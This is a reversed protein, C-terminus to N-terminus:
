EACDAGTLTARMAEAQDHTFILHGKAISDYDLKTWVAAMLGDRSHENTRLLVHGIEHAMVHALIETYSGNRLIAANQVQDDFVRANVGIRALPQAMGLATGKLQEPAAAQIKLAIDRRALCAAEREHGKHPVVPADNLSAESAAADGAIFEIEIGSRHFIRRLETIAARSVGKSTHAQDYVVVNLDAAGASTMMLTALMLPKM